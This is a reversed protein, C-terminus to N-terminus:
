SNAYDMIQIFAPAGRRISPSTATYDNQCVVISRTSTTRWIRVMAWGTIAGIGQRREPPGKRPRNVCM